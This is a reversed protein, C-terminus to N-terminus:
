VPENIGAANNENVGFPDVIQYLMTPDSITRFEYGATIPVTPAQSATGWGAM